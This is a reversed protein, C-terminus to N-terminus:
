RPVPLSVNRLRKLAVRVYVSTSSPSRHGLIDSVVQSNAGADIQRSAHSHRLVHAGLVKVEIGALQAYERIRHRIAGSTLPSHPMAVSVFIQRAIAHPPRTSRLYDALARAVAPLLPLEVSLSTKPRRAHLVGVNWDIDDLRLGLVEAAGFGYTAMMLLMAYDRKGISRQRPIANLIRRVDKWALARPPRDVLRVRPAVVCSALDRHIRGSARLFRLFARLSSCTDAITRKCLRASLTTVFADVDAVRSAAVRRGRSRLVSLFGQATDIDRRLTAASVGRHGQRYRQYADLLAPLRKPPQSPKWPLIAVELSRLASAWAHLGNHAVERTSACVGRSRRPGVYANKFKTVGLLTLESIEDLGQQLCYERFRHVWQLYTSISKRSLGSVRWLRVV